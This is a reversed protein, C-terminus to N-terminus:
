MENLKSQVFRVIKEEIDEGGFSDLAKTFLFEYLDVNGDENVDMGKISDETMEEAEEQTHFELFFATWEEKTIEGNKDADYM